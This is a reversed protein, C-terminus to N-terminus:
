EVRVGMEELEKVVQPNHVIPGLTALREGERARKKITDVARAVGECLGADAALVVRITM